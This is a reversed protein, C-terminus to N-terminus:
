IEKLFAERAEKLLKNISCIWLSIKGLLISGSMAANVPCVRCENVEACEFCFMKTTYFRGQFLEEYYPLHKTMIAEHNEIFEDLYGLFYKQYEQTDTKDKFFDPFLYCGWLEGGPTIAFRDVAGSCGFMSKKGNERARFDSVPLCGTKNFHCVLFDKLDFLQEKLELLAAENWEKITSFTFTPEKIGLKIILQLSQSLYKVTGPTFVSNTTLRIGPFHAINRIIKMMSTFDQHRGIDHALGDFSLMISFRHMDLFSLNKEDLLSGNTTLYFRIDKELNKNKEKLYSVTHLIQDFALLPEGGYFSILCEKKLFPYFFDLTKEILPTDM